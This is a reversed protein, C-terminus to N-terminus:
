MLKEIALDPPQMEAGKAQKAKLNRGGELLFLRTEKIVETKRSM